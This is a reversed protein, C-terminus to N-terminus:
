IIFGLHSSLVTLVIPVVRCHAPSRADTGNHATSSSGKGSGIMVRFGASPIGDALVYLWAYGVLSYTLIMLLSHSPGPPYIGTNAPATMIVSGRNATLKCKLEVLRHNMHVAHTSYGLDILVTTIVKAGDPVYVDVQYDKGYVYNDPTTDPDIAPRDLTM